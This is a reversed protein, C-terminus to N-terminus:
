SRFVRAQFPGLSLSMRTQGLPFQASTGSLPVAVEPISGWPWYPLAFDSYTQAGANAVVIVQGAAGLARGGTRCYAFVLAGENNDMEPHFYFFEIENRQLSENSTRLHILAAVADWVARHGPVNRRSWDVPDSMKLSDDAHELDHVDAFEEGALFMPIGVSTLLLAFASRIRDLAEQHAEHVPGHQPLHAIKGRIDDVTGSGLGRLRLVAGFIYNMMRPQEKVDHSTFYNVSQAM